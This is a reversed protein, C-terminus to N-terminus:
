EQSLIAERLKEVQYADRLHYPGIRIRCLSSLHAGNSLELGLDRAIARIYTGKSCIIRFHVLPLEIGTIEFASIVVQKPKLEVDIDKRAFKYARKGQFKVASFVPPVQDFTGTFKRASAIIAEETIGATDFTKDVETELDFSPTTAGLTFSGTYEKDYEKFEEIRKTYIGTCLVLLGTALPDLTGAHGIKFKKRGTKKRLVARINNVVDFSSWRYPKDVLILEGQEFNFDM